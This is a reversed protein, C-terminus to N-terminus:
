RTIVFEHCQAESSRAGGTHVAAICLIHKGSKLSPLPIYQCEGRRAKLRHGRRIVQDRYRVMGAYDAGDPRKGKSLKYDIDYHLTRVTYPALKGLERSARQLTTPGRKLREQGEKYKGIFRVLFAMKKKLLAYEKAKEDEPDKPNKKNHRREEKVDELLRKEWKKERALDKQANELYMDLWPADRRWLKNIASFCKAQPESGLLCRGHLDGDPPKHRADLRVKLTDRAYLPYIETRVPCAMVAHRYKFRVEKFEPRVKEMKRNGPKVAHVNRPTRLALFASMDTIPGKNDPARLIAPSTSRALMIEPFRVGQFVRHIARGEPDEYELIVKYVGPAISSKHPFVGLSCLNHTVSATSAYCKVASAPVPIASGAPVSAFEKAMVNHLYMVQYHLKGAHPLAAKPGTALPFYRQWKRSPQKERWHPHRPDAKITLKVEGRPKDEMILAGLWTPSPGWSREDWLSSGTYSFGSRVSYRGFLMTREMRLRAESFVTQRAKRASALMGRPDLLVKGLPTESAPALLLDIAAELARARYWSKLPLAPKIQDLLLIAALLRSQGKGPAKLARYLPELKHAKFPALLPRLEPPAASIVRPQALGGPLRSLLLWPEMLGPARLAAATASALAQKTRGAERHVKANHYHDAGSTPKLILGGSKELAAVRKELAGLRKVAAKFGPDLALAKGLAAKEAARDGADRARLSRSYHSFAKFNRSSAAGIKKVGLLTLGAGIGKLLGRALRRELEFFQAETGQEKVSLAVRATEVDVVRVNIRLSGRHAQFSGTLIYAAGLGKGLRAATKPDFYPNKQLKIEALVENLRGREVLTVDSSASLDTILMEALGQKLPDLDAKKSTNEFYSVAIVPADARADSTLGLLVMLFVPLARLLHM